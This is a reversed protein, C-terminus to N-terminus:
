VEYQTARPTPEPRRTNLEIKILAERMHVFLEIFQAQCFYISGAALCCIGYGM